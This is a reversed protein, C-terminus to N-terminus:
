RLVVAETGNAEVVICFEDESRKEVIFQCRGHFMPVNDADCELPANPDGNGSGIIKGGNVSVRVTADAGNVFVGESDIASVNVIRYGSDTGFVECCLQKMAGASSVTDTVEIGDDIGVAKLVGKEYPVVFEVRNDVVNGEGIQTGNLYLKVLRCNTFVAVRVEEGDSYGQWQPLLHVM